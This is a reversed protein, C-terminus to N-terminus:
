KFISNYFPILSIESRSSCLWRIKTMLAAPCSRSFSLCVVTPFRAQVACLKETTYVWTQCTSPATPGCCLPSSPSSLRWSPLSSPAWNSCSSRAGPPRVSSVNWLRQQHCIISKIGLRIVFFGGSFDLTFGLLARIWGSNNGCSTLFLEPWM